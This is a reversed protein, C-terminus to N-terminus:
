SLFKEIGTIALENLDIGLVKKDIGLSLGLLQTYLISPLPRTENDPLVMIKQVRDFQLQCYVCATCLYDAGSQEADKIKKRTIDLSLEDDFGLLPSGCCDLKSQWAISSAGTLEVLQDFISPSIPNDFRIIDKPRLIHCGYHTAIKLDNFSKVIKDRIKDIGIDKFLVEFLHRVEVTQQYILGEKALITNIEQQQAPNEKLTHRVHKLSNFCCNCFTLINVGNKEALALNRAGALVYARTDINKLPYGCCNFEKIDKFQVGLKRLVADTSSEYQKLFISTPCCRFLAFNM